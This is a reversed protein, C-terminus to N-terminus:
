DAWEVFTAMQEEAKQARLKEVAAPPVSSLLQGRSDGRGHINARCRHFKNRSDRETRSAGAGVEHCLPDIYASASASCSGEDRSSASVAPDDM